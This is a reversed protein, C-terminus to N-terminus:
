IVDFYCEFRNFLWKYKLRLEDAKKHSYKKPKCQIFVISMKIPHVAIIDAFSHSGASRICVYGMKEFKKKIRYEKARGRIYNKNSM